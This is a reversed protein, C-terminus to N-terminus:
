PVALLWALAIRVREASGAPAAALQTLLPGTMAARGRRQALAVLAETAVAPS